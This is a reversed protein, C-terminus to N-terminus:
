IYLGTCFNSAGKIERYKAPYMTFVLLYHKEVREAVETKCLMGRKYLYMKISLHKGYLM